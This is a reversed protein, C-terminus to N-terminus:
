DESAPRKPREEYLSDPLYTLHAPAPATATRVPLLMRATHIDM